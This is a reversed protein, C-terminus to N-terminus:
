RRPHGQRAAESSGSIATMESLRLQDPHVSAAPEVSLTPGSLRVRFGDIATATLQRSVLETRILNEIAPIAGALHRRFYLSRVARSLANKNITIVERSGM